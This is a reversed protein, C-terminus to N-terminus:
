RGLRSHYLDAYARAMADLSFHQKAREHNAAGLNASFGPNELIECLRAAFLGPDRGLVTQDAATPGLLESVGEVDTAVVPKSAAMAELVVNPM